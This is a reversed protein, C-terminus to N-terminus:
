TLSTLSANVPFHVASDTVHLYHYFSQGIIYAQLM